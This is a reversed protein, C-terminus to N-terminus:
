LTCDKVVREFQLNDYKIFKDWEVWKHLGSRKVVGSWDYKVGGIECAFHGDIVDYVIKGNNFRDALILAFYYCNGDLWHCDIPFRGRIFGLVSDKDMGIKEQKIASRYHSSGRGRM